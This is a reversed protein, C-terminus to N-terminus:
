WRITDEKKQSDQAIREIHSLRANISELVTRIADVKVNVLQIDKELASFRSQELENYAPHMMHQQTAQTAPSVQQFSHQRSAQMTNFDNFASPSGPDSTPFDPQSTQPMSTSTIDGDLPLGMHGSSSPDPFSKGQSSSDSGFDSFDDDKKKFFDFAM